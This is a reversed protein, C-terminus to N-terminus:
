IDSVGPIYGRDVHMVQAENNEIMKSMLQNAENILNPYQNQLLIDSRSYEAACITVLWYPDDVPVRSRSTKLQEAKRYVPLQIHNGVESEYFDRAFVISEGIIACTDSGEYKKLLDAPILTFSSSGVKVADGPTRSIATFESTDIDYRRRNAQATAVTFLPDYLSTWAVNPEHQWASIYFNAIGLVRRYEKDGWQPTKPQGTAKLIVAAVLEDTTM